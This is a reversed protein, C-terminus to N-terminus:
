SQLKILQLYKQAIKQAIQPILSPSIELFSLSILERAQAEKYGMLRLVFSPQSFGFLCEQGNIIHIGDFMLSQILNRAKIGKLGLCLTNKPSQYFCYCQEKLSAQLCHFFSQSLDQTNAQKSLIAEKFVAYLNQIELYVSPLGYFSSNNSAIIGFPRMIGLNEGNVLLLDAKPLPLNLPITYSIDVIKLVNEPLYELPNQTLIDENIHPIIFCDAGNDLANQLTAQTIYGLTSDPLLPIINSEELLLYAQYLLNHSSLALAIKYHKSLSHLLFYFSEVSFSFPRAIQTNLLACLEKNEQRIQQIQTPTIAQYNCTRTALLKANLDLNLETNQLRDLM